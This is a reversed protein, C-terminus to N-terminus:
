FSKCSAFSRSAANFCCSCSTFSTSSLIRCFASASFLLFSSSFFLSLSSFFLAASCAAADELEMAVVTMLVTLDATFVRVPADDLWGGDSLFEVFFSM